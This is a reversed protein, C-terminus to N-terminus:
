LAMATWHGVPCPGPVASHPGPPLADRPPLMLGSVFVLGAATQLAPPTCAPIAEPAVFLLSLFSLAGSCSLSQLEPPQSHLLIPLRTHPCSSASPPRRLLRSGQGRGPQHVAQM